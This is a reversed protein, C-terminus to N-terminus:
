FLYAISLGMTWQGHKGDFAALSSRDYRLEPRVMADPWAHVNLTVTGSGIRQGVNTPLGLVGSTRAGNEDNLYDARAALDASSLLDYQLWGGLGGGGPPRRPTPSRPTRM